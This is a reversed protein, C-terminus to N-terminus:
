AFAGVPSGFTLNQRVSLHPFLLHDQFVTGIRRREPPLAVGSKTDVLARDLLRICGARPRLAGTILAFITSKGAGSPGILATVGDGVAFSADLEFGSPYRFRCDFVLRSM